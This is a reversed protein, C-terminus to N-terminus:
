EFKHFKVNASPTMFWKGKHWCLLGDGQIWWMKVNRSKVASESSFFSEPVDDTNNVSSQFVAYWVPIGREYAKLLPGAPPAQFEENKKDM